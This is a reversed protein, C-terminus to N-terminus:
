ESLIPTHRSAFGKPLKLRLVFMGEKSPDGMLVVSEAGKPLSAPGPGWKVDQPAMMTHDDAALAPTLAVLSVAVASITLKM